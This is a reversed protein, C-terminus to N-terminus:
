IKLKSRSERYTLFVGTVVEESWPTIETDKLKKPSKFDILARLYTLIVIIKFTHLM